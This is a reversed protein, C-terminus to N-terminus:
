GLTRSVVVFKMSCGSSTASRIVLYASITPRSFTIAPLSQPNPVEAQPLFTTLVMAQALSWAITSPACRADCSNHYAL